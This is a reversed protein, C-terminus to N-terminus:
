SRSASLFDDSISNAAKFFPWKNSTSLKFPSTSFIFRLSSINVLCSSSALHTDTHIINVLHIYLASQAARPLLSHTHTHIIRCSPLAFHTCTHRDTRRHMHTHTHTHPLLTLTQIYSVSAPSHLNLTQIDTERERHLMHTNHLHARAFSIAGHTHAQHAIYM